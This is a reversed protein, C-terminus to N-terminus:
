YQMRMHELQAAQLQLTQEQIQKQRQLLTGVDYLRPSWGLKVYTKHLFFVLLLILPTGIALPLLIIILKSLNIKAGENELVIPEHIEYTVEPPPTAITALGLM